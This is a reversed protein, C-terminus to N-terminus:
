ACVYLTPALVARGHAVFLRRHIKKPPSKIILYKIHKKIINFVIIGINNIFIKLGTPPSFM